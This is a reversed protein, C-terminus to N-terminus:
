GDAFRYIRNDWPRGRRLLVFYGRQDPPLEDGPLLPIVNEVTGSPELYGRAKLLRIPNGIMRFALIHSSQNFAERPVAETEQTGWLSAAGVGGGKGFAWAIKSEKGAKWQQGYAARDLEDYVVLSPRGKQVMSWQLEAVEEADVHKQSFPEGRFVISHEGDNDPPHAILDAVDKRTQGEFQQHLKDDIILATARPGALELYRAVIRRAAHTKGVRTDGLLGIRPGEAPRYRLPALAETAALEGPTIPEGALTSVGEEESRRAGGAL